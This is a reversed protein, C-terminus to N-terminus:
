LPKTMRILNTNPLGFWRPSEAQATMGLREYLRRASRNKAAVDLALRTSGAAQATDELSGILITGIGAGRRASEVAVARVYFDGEPVTDIFRVIRRTIRTFVAMRYRRWGAAATLPKNTSHRHAEATYGSAMGVVRGGQEALTVYQYSLDHSPQTFARAIIDGARRGLMARFYGEQAQDLLRSFVLGDEVTPAAPRLSIRATKSTM